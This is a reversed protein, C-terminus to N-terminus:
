LLKNLTNAQICATLAATETRLRHDGLNIPQYGKRMSLSIEEPSFDGEPGIIILANHGPKLADNLHTKHGDECHAIFARSSTTQHLFATLPMAQNLKPLYARLSQKMASAIIKELRQPKLVRRESHDCFVPTIEDVGCETCKELMWEFRDMQKTPAVALHLHFPRPNLPKPTGCIKLIVGKPNPLAITAKCWAGKGDTVVVESGEVLRLVKICHHSEEGDLTAIDERIHAAFFVHM